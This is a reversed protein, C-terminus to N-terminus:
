RRTAPLGHSAKAQSPATFGLPVGTTVTLCAENTGFCRQEFMATTGSPWYWTLTEESMRTVVTAPGLERVVATKFEATHARPVVVEYGHLADGVLEFTVNVPGVDGYRYGFCIVKRGDARELTQHSGCGDNLLRQNMVERPTGWALGAFGRPEDALAASASCLGLVVAVVIRARM